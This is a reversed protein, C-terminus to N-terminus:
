STSKALRRGASVIACAAEAPSPADLVASLAAVAMAGAAFAAGASEPGLGGLAVVPIPSAACAAALAEVGLAPTGPHSTTPFVPSWTAYDAGERAFELVEATCHASAGILLRPFARRVARVHPADGGLHVGCAGAALAVDARGNIFLQAGYASALTSLEV